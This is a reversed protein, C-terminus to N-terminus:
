WKWNRSAWSEFCLGPLVRLSLSVYGETDARHDWEELVIFSGLNKKIDEIDLLLWHQCAELVEAKIAETSENM